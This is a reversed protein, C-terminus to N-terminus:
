HRKNQHQSSIRCNAAKLKWNDIKEYKVTWTEKNIMEKYTGGNAMGHTASTKIRIQLFTIGSQEENKFLGTFGSSFVLNNCESIQDQKLDQKHSLLDWVIPFVSRFQLQLTPYKSWSEPAPWFVKKGM